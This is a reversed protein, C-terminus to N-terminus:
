PEVVERECYSAREPHARRPSRLHLGKEEIEIDPVVIYVKMGDPLRVDSNLKIQGEVVIGESTTATMGNGGKLGRKPLCQRCDQPRRGLRPLALRTPRPRATQPRRRGEPGGLRHLRMAHLRAHRRVPLAQHSDPPRRHLQRDDARLYM